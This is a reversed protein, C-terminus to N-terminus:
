SASWRIRSPNASGSWIGGCGRWPWAPMIRWAATRCSRARLDQLLARFDGIAQARVGLLPFREAAAHLVSKADAARDLVGFLDFIEKGELSAGEIRLKHVAEELDPIGGFEIRLAAGRGATQPRGASRLYDIAEAAEALDARLREADTLAAIRALEAQGPASAM